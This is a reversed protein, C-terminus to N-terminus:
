ITVRYHDLWSFAILQSRINTNNIAVFKSSLIQCVPFRLAPYLTLNEVCMENMQLIAHLTAMDKLYSVHPFIDRKPFCFTQFRMM